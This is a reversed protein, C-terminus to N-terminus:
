DDGNSVERGTKELVDQGVVGDVCACVASGERMELMTVVVLM